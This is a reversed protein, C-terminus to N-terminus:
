HVPELLLDKMSKCFSEVDLPKTWYGQAGAAQAAKVDEQMMSASLAIIRLGKTPGNARLAKLVDLGSMDPLQMDLLLVDPLLATAQKIGSEGDEAVMMQVDPWRGLIHGVLIVNVPNDEIYLVLGAPAASGAAAVAPVVGPAAPDVWLAAALKPRLIEVEVVTGVGPQSRVSISGGLLEVLQRVLAMGIGSGAIKSDERGLRNFPQFLGALQQPTMGM